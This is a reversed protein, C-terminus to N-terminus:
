ALAAKSAALPAFLIYASENDNIGRIWIDTLADRGIWCAVGIMLFLLVFDPLSWGRIERLQNM